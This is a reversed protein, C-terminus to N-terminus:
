DVDLIVDGQENVILVRQNFLIDGSIPNSGGNLFKIVSGTGGIRDFTQQNLFAFPKDRTGNRFPINMSTPDIFITDLVVGSFEQVGQTVWLGRGFTAAWLAYGGELSSYQWFLDSVETFVPGENNLQEESNGDHLPTMSWNEGGDESAFIGVDTGIYVWDKATPHYTISNVQMNFDLPKPTFVSQGTNNEYHLWINNQSYGGFTLIAEAKLSPTKEQIAIDTVCTNPISGNTIDGSWNDFPPSSHEVRGNEYGIWLQTGVSNFNITSIFNNTGAPLKIEEIIDSIRDYKWLSKGGLFVENGNGPNIEMTGILRSEIPGLDASTDDFDVGGNLSIRLRNYNVTSYIINSNNPHYAIKSGDGTSPQKWRPDSSSPFFGDAVIIGNDQSAGGYNSSNLPSVAASYLQTIGLTRGALNDWGSILTTQGDNAASIDDSKQIGGDNGIYVKKNSCNYNLSPIIIHQDAHLQSNEAVDLNVFNHYEAWNSIRQISAGGDTSKWLDQGGFYIHDDNCEDVWITSCYNGFSEDSFVGGHRFPGSWTSGGTTSKYIYAELGLNTSNQLAYLIDSDYSSISVEIRGNWNELEDPSSTVKNLYADTIPDYVYLKGHGSVTIRNADLPHFDIDTLRNTELIKNAWTQGGDLSEKLRGILTLPNGSQNEIAVVALLHNSNHPDVAIKNVWYFEFNATSSLQSWTNGGDQSKLIGAGPLGMTNAAMGEGTSAYMIDTNNPDIAISTVSLSASFDDLAEWNAGNDTSKWIGGGAAGIFINEGGSGNPQLAIARIRGGINGPGLWKWAVLGGDKNSAIKQQKVIHSKAKRRAESIITPEISGGRRVVRQWDRESTWEPKVLIQTTITDDENQHLDLEIAIISLTILFVIILVINKKNM